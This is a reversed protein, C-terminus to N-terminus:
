AANRLPTASTDLLLAPVSLRLFVQESVQIASLPAATALFAWSSLSPLRTTLRSSITWATARGVDDGRM